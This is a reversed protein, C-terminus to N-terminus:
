LINISDRRRLCSRQETSYTICLFLESLFFLTDLTDSSLFRELQSVDNGPSNPLPYHWFVRGCKRPPLFHHDCSDDDSEVQCPARPFEDQFVTIRAGGMTTDANCLIRLVLRWSILRTLHNFCLCAANLAIKRVNNEWWSMKWFMKPRMSLYFWRESVNKPRCQIRSKLHLNLGSYRCKTWYTKWMSHRRTSAVLSGDIGNLRVQVTWNWDFRECTEIMKWARSTSNRCLSRWRRRRTVGLFSSRLCLNQTWIWGRKQLSTVNPKPSPQAKIHVGLQGPQAVNTGTGPHSFELIFLTAQTTPSRAEFERQERYLTLIGGGLTM